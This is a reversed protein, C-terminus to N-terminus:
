WPLAAPTQHRLEFHSGRGYDECISHAAHLALAYITVQPNAGLGTPFLSADSVWVNDVGGRLRFDTDVVARGYVSPKAMLCGGMVHVSLLSSRGPEFVVDRLQELNDGPALEIAPNTVHYVTEAGAAFHIKTMQILSERMQAQNTPHLEYQLKPRGRDVTVTGYSWNTDFGSNHHAYFFAGRPYSDTMIQRLRDGYELLFNSTMVPFSTGTEILYGNPGTAFEMSLSNDPVGYASFTPSPYKGFCMTMPHIHTREGVGKPLDMHLRSNLLVAPSGLAGAALVVGLRPKVLLKHGTARNKGDLLEASVTTIRRAHQQLREVRADTFVTAAHAHAGTPALADPIWKVIGSQKRDYPCGTGCNGCERCDRTNNPLNRWDYNLEHCGDRLASAAANYRRDAHIHLYNVVEQVYPRLSDSTFGLGFKERWAKLTDDPPPLCASWNVTTGGGLCRGQMVQFRRDTTFRSAGEQYLERYMLQERERLTPRVHCPGGHGQGKPINPGEELITVEFGAEALKLACAGGGAGSGVVCFDTEVDLDQTQDRGQVIQGTM